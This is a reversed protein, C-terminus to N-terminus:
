ESGFVIKFRDTDPTIQFWVGNAAGVLMPRGIGDDERTAGYAAPVSAEYASLVAEPALVTAYEATEHADDVTSRTMCLTSGSPPEPWDAPLRSVDDLSAPAFALPYPTRCAEPVDASVPVDVEDTVSVGPDEAAPDGSDGGSSCATLSALLAAAALVTVTTGRRRATSRTSRTLTTRM